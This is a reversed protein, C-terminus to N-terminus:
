NSFVTCFPLSTLAGTSLVNCSFPVCSIISNYSHLYPARGTLLCDRQPADDDHAAGAQHRLGWRGVCAQLAVDKFAHPVYFHALPLMKTFLTYQVLSHHNPHSM